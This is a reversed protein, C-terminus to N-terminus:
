VDLLIPPQWTKEFRVPNVAISLSNILFSAEKALLKNSEFVGVATQYGTNLDKMLRAIKRIDAM